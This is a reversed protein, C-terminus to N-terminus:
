SSYIFLFSIVTGKENPTATESSNFITYAIFTYSVIFASANIWYGFGKLNTYILNIWLVSRYRKSDDKNSDIFTSRRKSERAFNPAQKVQLEAEPNKANKESNHINKLQELDEDLSADIDDEFGKNEVKQKVSNRKKSEEM